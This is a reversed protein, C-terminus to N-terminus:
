RGISFTVATSAALLAGQESFAKVRWTHLQGADMRAAIEEPVKIATDRTQATWSPEIGEVIIIYEAAGPVPQWAFRAPTKEVIGFPEIIELAAGRVIRNGGDTIAPPQPGRSLLLVGVVAALLGAAGAAAWAYPFRRGGPMRRTWGASPAPGAAKVADILVAREATKRFCVPCEFYHKEFRETEDPSLRGLLYSDILAEFESHEANEANSM